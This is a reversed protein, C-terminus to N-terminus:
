VICFKIDKPFTTLISTGSPTVKLMDEIRVGGFGKEYVGPEITIVMGAELIDVSEKGLRPWEHIYQGVGHGLNHTFKSNLKFKKLVNRVVKDVRGGSVGHKVVKIGSLQAELVAKYMKEQKATPTGMFFMRTMDSCYGHIVAGFDIMVMDNKQIKKKTPWHHINASNKGSAVIPSFAAEKVGLRAMQKELIFAAELETMGPEIKRKLDKLADCMINAGNAIYFVETSTKLARVHDILKLIQPKPQHM